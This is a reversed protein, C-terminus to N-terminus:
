PTLGEVREIERLLGKVREAIADRIERWREEPVTVPDPINWYDTKESVEVPCSDISCMAVIRWASRAKDMDLLKPTQRSIDIGAERM